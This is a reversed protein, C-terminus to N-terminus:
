KYFSTNCILFQNRSFTVLLVAFSICVYRTMFTVISLNSILKGFKLLLPKSTPSFPPGYYKFIIIILFGTYGKIVEENSIEYLKYM